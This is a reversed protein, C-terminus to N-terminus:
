DNKIKPYQYYKDTGIGWNELQKGCVSIIVTTEYFKNDDGSHAIAKDNREFQLNVEVSHAPGFLFRTSYQIKRRQVSCCDPNKAYFTRISDESGDIKM